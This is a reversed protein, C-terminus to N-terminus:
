ILIFYICKLSKNDLAGEIIDIMKKPTTDYVRIMM